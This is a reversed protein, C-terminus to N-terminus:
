LGVNIKSRQRKIFLAYQHRCLGYFLLCTLMLGLEVIISVCGIWLDDFCKITTDTDIDTGMSSTNCRGWEMPITIMYHNFLTWLCIIVLVSVVFGMFKSIRPIHDGVCYLVNTIDCPPDDVEAEEEEEYINNEYESDSTTRSM